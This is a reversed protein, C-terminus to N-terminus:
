SMVVLRFACRAAMAGRPSKERGDCYDVGSQENCISGDSGPADFAVRCCCLM